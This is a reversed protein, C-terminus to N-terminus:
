LQLVDISGNFVLRCHWVYCVAIGFMAVSLAVSGTAPRRNLSVFGLIVSVAFSVTLLLVYLPFDTSM